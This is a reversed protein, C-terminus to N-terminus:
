KIGEFTGGNAVFVDFAKLAVRMKGIKGEVFIYELRLDMPWDSTYFLHNDKFGLTPVVQYIQDLKFLMMAHGAICGTTGCWNKPRNWSPAGTKKNWFFSSMDFHKPGAAVIAARLQACKELNVAM